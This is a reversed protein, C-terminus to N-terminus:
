KESMEYVEWVRDAKEAQYVGAEDFVSIMEDTRADYVVTQVSEEYVTVDFGTVGLQKWDAGEKLAVGQFLYSTYSAEGAPLVKKYYIYGDGNEWSSWDWYAGKETLVIASAAEAPSITVRARVICDNDGMNRIRSKKIAGDGEEEITTTISGAEFVNRLSNSSSQLRSITMDAGAVTLLAAVALVGIIFANRKM